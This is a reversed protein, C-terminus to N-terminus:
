SRGLFRTLRLIYPPVFLFVAVVNPRNDEKFINESCTNRVDFARANMAGYDEDRNGSGKPDSRIDPWPRVIDKIM